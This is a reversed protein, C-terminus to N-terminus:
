NHHAPCEPNEIRVEELSNSRSRVPFPPVAAVPPTRLYQNLFSKVEDFGDACFGSGLTSHHNGAIDLRYFRAGFEEALRRFRQPRSRWDKTYRLGLIPARSSTKAGRVDRPDLGLAAEDTFWGFRTFANFPVTPQCVVVATVDPEQLLAIPFAGTLCMGIVGVGTGEPWTGKAARCLERLWAVHQSTTEGKGCSFERAGCERRANVFVKWFNSKGGPKGFFLPVVVRYGAAAIRRAADLDDDILGPLEHLLLVPPGATGTVYIQHCVRQADTFRYSSFDKVEVHTPDCRGPQLADGAHWLHGVAAAAFTQIATRRDVDV